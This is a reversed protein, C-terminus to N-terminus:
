RLERTRWKSGSGSLSLSYFVGVVVVCVGIVQPLTLSGVVLPNDARFWEVHFRLLAYGTVSLLFSDGPHVLKPDIWLLYGLLIMAGAAEYLQVPHVPLSEAAGDELVGAARQQAYAPTGPGYTVRFPWDATCMAPVTQVQQLWSPNDIVALRERPQCIDGWCCGSQFCGVRLVAVGLLLSWSFADLLRGVPIQSLRAYVVAVGIAAALAGFLVRDNGAQRTVAQSLRGGLGSGLAIGILLLPALWDIHWRPIGLRGARWRALWWGCALAALLFVGYRQIGLAFLQSSHM